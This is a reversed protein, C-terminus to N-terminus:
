GYGYERLLEGLNEKEKKLSQIEAEQEAIRVLAAEYATKAIRLCAEMENILHLDVLVDTM